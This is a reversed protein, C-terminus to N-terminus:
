SCELESPHVADDEGRETDRRGLGTGVPHAPNCQPCLDHGDDAIGVQWGLQRLVDLPGADRADACEDCRLGVYELTDRKFLLM